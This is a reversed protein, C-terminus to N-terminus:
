GQLRRISDQPLTNNPRGLKQSWVLTPKPTQGPIPILNKPDLCILRLVGAQEIMVYLKGNLPLPAGLFVADLCLNFASTTKDAEEENLKNPLPLAPAADRDLHPDVKVRGLEWRELGSKMDV